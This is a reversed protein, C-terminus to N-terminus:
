LLNSNRIEDAKYTLLKSNELCPKRKRNPIDDEFNFPYNYKPQQPPRQPLPLPSRQPKPTRQPTKRIPKQAKQNEQVILESQLKSVFQGKSNRLRPLAPQKPPKPNRPPIQKPTKQPQPVQRNDDDVIVIM